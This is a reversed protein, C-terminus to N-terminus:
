KLEEYKLIKTVKARHGNQYDTILFLGQHSNWDIGCGKREQYKPPCPLKLKRGCCPCNAVVKVLAESKLTMDFESKGCSLRVVWSFDGRITEDVSKVSVVNPNVIPQGGFIGKLM